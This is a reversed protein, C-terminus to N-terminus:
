MLNLFPIPNELVVTFFSHLKYPAFVSALPTSTMGEVTAIGKKRGGEREEVRVPETHTSRLIAPRTPDGGHDGAPVVEERGQAVAPIHPLLCRGSAGVAVAGVQCLLGSAGGM